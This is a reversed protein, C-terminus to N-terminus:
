IVDFLTAAMYLAEVNSVQPPLHVWDSASDWMPSTVFTTDLYQVKDDNVEAVAQKILHSYSDMVTPSRWDTVPCNGSADGIPNCHISRMYVRAGAEEPLVKRAVDVIRRMEKLYRDFLYPFRQMMSAPWQAVGIIFQTCGHQTYSQNLMWPGVDSPYRAKAHVFFQGLGLKNFSSVLHRSHSFGVVCVKPLNMNLKKLAKIKQMWVHGSNDMWQFSYAKLSTDNMPVACRPLQPNRRCDQPQYRTHLPNTTKTEKSVWRGGHLNGMGSYLQEVSVYSEAGTIRNSTPAEMCDSKFNYSLWESENQRRLADVGFDSCFLVIVDLFYKGPLLWGDKYYGCYVTGNRNYDDKENWELMALAPGSLRGRFAPYPCRADHKLHVCVAGDNPDHWIEAIDSAITSNSNISIAQKEEIPKQVVSRTLAQITTMNPLYEKLGSLKTASNSTEFGEIVDATFHKLSNREALLSVLGMMVIFPVVSVGVRVRPSTMAANPGTSTTKDLITSNFKHSDDDDTMQTM